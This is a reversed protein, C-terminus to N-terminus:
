QVSHKGFGDDRGVHSNESRGTDESQIDADILPLEEERQPITTENTLELNSPDEVLAQANSEVNATILVTPGDIDNATAQMETSSITHNSQAGIAPM